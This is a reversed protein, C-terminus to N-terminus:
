PLCMEMRPDLPKVDFADFGGQGNRTTSSKQKWPNRSRAELPRWPTRICIEQAHSLSWGRAIESMAFQFILFLQFPLDDFEIAIQGHRHSIASPRYTVCSISYSHGSWLTYMDLWHYFVDIKIPCRGKFGATPFGGGLRNKRFDFRVASNSTPSFSDPKM